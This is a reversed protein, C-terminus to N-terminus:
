ERNEHAVLVVAVLFRESHSCHNHFSSWHARLGLSHGLSHRVKSFATSAFQLLYLAAIMNSAAVRYNGEPKCNLQAM